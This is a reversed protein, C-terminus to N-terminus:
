LVYRMRPQQFDTLDLFETGLHDEAAMGEASEALADRRRNEVINIVRIAVLTCAALGYMIAVMLRGHYYLPANWSQFTQPRIRIGAGYALIVKHKLRIYKVLDNQEALDKFYQLIEPGTAYIVLQIDLPSTTIDHALNLASAGTGITIVRITRGTRNPEELVSYPTEHKVEKQSNMSEDDKGDEGNTSLNVVSDSKKISETTDAEVNEDITAGQSLGNIVATKEPEEATSLAAM